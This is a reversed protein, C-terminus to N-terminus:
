WASLPSRTSIAAGSARSTWSRHARPRNARRGASEGRRRCGVPGPPRRRTVVGVPHGRRGAGVIAPTRRCQAVIAEVARDLDSLKTSSEDGWIVAATHDQGLRYGLRNEAHQRTIPAGDLILAVIERHEAHTGRTLADREVQLQRYIGAVTADIFSAISRASVDDYSM